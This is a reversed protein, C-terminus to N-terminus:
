FDSKPKLSIRHLDCKFRTYCRRMGSRPKMNGWMIVDNINFKVLWLICGCVDWQGECLFNSVFCALCWEWNVTLSVSLSFHVQMTVGQSASEQFHCRSELFYMKEQALIQPWRCHTQGGWEGVASVQELGVLFYKFVQISIVSSCISMPIWSDSYGLVSSNAFHCNHQWDPSCDSWIFAFPTPAGFSPELFFLVLIIFRKIYKIM